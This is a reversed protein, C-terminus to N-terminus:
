VAPTGTEISIDSITRAGDHCILAIQCPLKRKFVEWVNVKSFDIASKYVSFESPNFSKEGIQNVTYAEKLKQKGARLYFKVMGESLHLKQAIEQISLQGYYFCVLTKRYDKSLRLLEMRIKNANETQILTEIVPIDDCVINSYTDYEDDLSLAKKRGCWRKFTNHAISWLFAEFNNKINGKEIALICQYAIEQSLEEGQDVNGVKKIAFALFAPLYVKTLQDIQESKNL